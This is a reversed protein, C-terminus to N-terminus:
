WTIDAVKITAENLKTLANIYHVKDYMTIDEVAIDCLAIKGKKLLVERQIGRLLPSKPTYFHGQKEFVLNYYYGDTVLGNNVIIIEDCSQRLRFLEDLAPRNVWKHDYTLDTTEVVKVNQIDRIRYHSFSVEQIQEGYIIRCKVLGHVFAEPIHIHKKLYCKEGLGFVERRSRNARAEHLALNYCKGNLIKISEVLLSM